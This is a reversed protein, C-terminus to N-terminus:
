MSVFLQFLLMILTFISWTFMDNQLTQDSVAGVSLIKMGFLLPSTDQDNNWGTDMYVSTEITDEQNPYFQTQRAHRYKTELVPFSM